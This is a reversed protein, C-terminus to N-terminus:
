RWGDVGLLKLSNRDLRGLAALLAAAGSGTGAVAPLGVRKDLQREVLTLRSMQRLDSVLRSALMIAEARQMQLLALLDEVKTVREIKPESGLVQRVFAATGSRGLLDLVGVASVRAPDLAAGAGVLSYAEDTAGDRRGQLEPKLGKAAHVIPLTLVGDQGAALARDFDAVRGVATVDVGPLASNLTKELARQTLPLHLFVLLRLQSADASKRGSLLAGALIAAQSAFRLAGSNLM